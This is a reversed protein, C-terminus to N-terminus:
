EFVQPDLNVFFADHLRAIIEEVDAADVVLNMSMSSSGSLTLGVELEQVVRMVRSALSRDSGLNEGVLSVIARGGSIELECHAALDNLLPGNSALRDSDMAIVASSGSAATIMPELRAQSSRTVKDVLTSLLLGDSIGEAHSATAAVLRIMTVPRKYTISKIPNSCRPSTSTIATGPGDPHKSDCIHVPINKAAAPHIAKPHLVKAGFYTLEAAEAFSCQKVTRASPFIAPDATMLGPVDKWIQIDEADLAAGVIAATYDSGEFGLTTTAGNRASGIFGQILPVQGSEIVPVLQRRIAANTLDFIPSASGYRDDTKILDRSDLLCAPVGREALAGAVIASSLLEGYSLIKDLGRPPVEGLIALGELLKALEDFYQVVFDPAGAPGPNKILQAALDTHTIKLDSIISHARATDRQASAEAADLLGQTTKGMASVVVVPSHNLRDAIIRAVREIYPANQVSTGGFKMVIM